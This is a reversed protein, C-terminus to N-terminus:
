FLQLIVQGFYKQFINHLEPHAESADILMKDVHKSFDKLTRVEIDKEEPTQSQTDQRTRIERSLRAVKKSM